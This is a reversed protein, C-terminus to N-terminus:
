SVIRTRQGTQAELFSTIHCDGQTGGIGHVVATGFSHTESTGLHNLFPLVGEMKPSIYPQHKKKLCTNVPLHMYKTRGAAEGRM